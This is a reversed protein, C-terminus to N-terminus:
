RGPLIEVWTPGPVHILSQRTYTLTGKEPDIAFIGVSNSHRAACLLWKGSPHLAFHRPWDGRVPQVQRRTLSGDEPNIAFVTLSDNGRNGTYLFKGCPHVQIESATNVLEGAALEEPLASARSVRALTGTEEDWNFTSVTLDLENVVWAFGGDPSFKMHRPGANAVSAFKRGEGLYPANELVPYVFLANAGLDPIIVWNGGPSIAVYHPHASDQRPHTGTGPGHAVQHVPPGPMGDADVPFVTVSGQAYDATVLFKGTPHIAAHTVGSGGTSVTKLPELGYGTIRLASIGEQRDGDPGGSAYLVAQHPHKLLFGPNEWELALEPSGTWQGTEPNFGIAYVGKSEPNWATGLFVTDADTNSISM